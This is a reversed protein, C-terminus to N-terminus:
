EDVLGDDVGFRVADVLEEGVLVGVGGLGRRCWGRREKAGTATMRRAQTKAITGGHENDDQRAGLTTTTPAKTGDVGFIPFM